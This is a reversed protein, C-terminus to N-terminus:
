SGLDEVLGKARLWRRRRVRLVLLWATPPLALTLLGGSILNATPAGHWVSGALQQEAAATYPDSSLFVVTLPVSTSLPDGTNLPLPRGGISPDTAKRALFALTPVDTVTTSGNDDASIQQVDILRGPVATGEARLEGVLAADRFGHSLSAIGVGPGFGVMVPILAVLGLNWAVGLGAPRDRRRFFRSAPALTGAAASTILWRLADGIVHAIAVGLWLGATAGLVAGTIGILSRVAGFWEPLAVAPLVGALVGIGATCLLLVTLALVRLTAGRPRTRLKRYGPAKEFRAIQRGRVHQGSRRSQRVTAYPSLHSPSPTKAARCVASLEGYTEWLGSARLLIRNEHDLVLLAAGHATRHGTRFQNVTHVAGVSASPLTVQQGGFGHAVLSRDEATLWVRIRGMLDTPCNSPFAMPHKPDPVLLDQNQQWERTGWHKVPGIM